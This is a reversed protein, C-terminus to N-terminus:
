IVRKGNVKFTVGEVAFFQVKGTISAVESNEDILMVTGDEFVLDDTKKPKNTKVPEGNKTNSFGASLRGVKNKFYKKM